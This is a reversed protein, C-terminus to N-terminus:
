RSILSANRAADSGPFGELLRALTAERMAHNNARRFSEAVLLLLDPLQPEQPSRRALVRTLKEADDAYGARALRRILAVLQRVNFRM